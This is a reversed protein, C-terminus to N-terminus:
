PKKNLQTKAKALEQEAAILAQQTRAKIRAYFIFVIIGGALFGLIFNLM